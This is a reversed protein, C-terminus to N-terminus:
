LACATTLSLSAQYGIAAICQVQADQLLLVSALRKLCGLSGNAVQKVGWYACLTHSGYPTM